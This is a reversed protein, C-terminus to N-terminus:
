VTYSIISFTEDFASQTDGIRDCGRLEPDTRKVRRWCKACITSQM